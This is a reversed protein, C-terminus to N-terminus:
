VDERTLLRWEEFLNLLTLLKVSHNFNVILQCFSPINVFQSSNIKVLFYNVCILLDVKWISKALMNWFIPKLNNLKQLFNFNLIKSSSIVIHIETKLDNFTDWFKVKCQLRWKLTLIYRGLIQLKQTSSLYQLFSRRNLSSLNLKSSGRKCRRLTETHRRQRIKINTQRNLM